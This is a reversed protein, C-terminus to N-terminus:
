GIPQTTAPEAAPGPPAPPAPVAQPIPQTAPAVPAIVPAGEAEVLRQIGTYKPVPLNENVGKAEKRLRELKAYQEERERQLKNNDDQLQYYTAPLVTQYINGNFDRAYSTAELRRMARLNDEMDRDINNIRVKTADFDAALQDLKDKVAREAVKLQELQETTVWTAGWRHMGQKELERQLDIDQETFRRAIKQFGQTGRQEDPLGNLMEAVNDLVARNRPSAIMAQDFANLAAAPQNQRSLVVGLNNLTPAHHPVLTNVAEFSKRAQVFQDKRYELVGRLYLAIPNKPDEALAQNIKTEALALQGDRLLRRATDAVQLAKEQLQEREEVSVWRVGYKVFGADRRQQWVALDQKAEEGVPTNQSQEIFRQYRAIIRNIDEDHEVSRRLSALKEKMVDPPSQIGATLEISRVQEIPVVRFESKGQNIVYGRDGRKVDGTLRTGDKLVLVDARAASAIAIILLVSLRKM